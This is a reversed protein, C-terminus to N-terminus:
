LRLVGTSQALTLQNLLDQQGQNIMQNFRDDYDTLHNSQIIHAVEETYVEGRESYHNLGRALALGGPLQSETREAERILRLQRYSDHRNLNTLYSQISHYPSPFRAVEHVADEKRANPVLGCGRVFCWQGFLNNGEVAFRATGWASEKAAQALVLSPPVLDLRRKLLKFMAHSGMPADVRLRAAQANLWAIDQHTLEAKEELYELRQRLVLIRVNALAIRPFMYTFFRSKKEATSKSQSFDPLPSTAWAPLPPLEQLVTPVTEEPILTPKVFYGVALAAILPVVVLGIRGSKHM